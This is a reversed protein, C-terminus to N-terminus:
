KGEWYGDYKKNLPGEGEPTSTPSKLTKEDWSGSETDIGANVPNTFRDEPYDPGVNKSKHVAPSGPRGRKMSM